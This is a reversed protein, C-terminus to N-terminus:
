YFFRRYGGVGEAIVVHEIKPNEGFRVRWRCLIGGHLDWSDFTLCVHRDSCEEFAPPRITSPVTDALLREIESADRGSRELDQRVDSLPHDLPVDEPGSLVKGLRLDPDVLLRTVDEAIRQADEGFAQLQAPRFSMVRVMTRRWGGMLEKDGVTPKWGADGTNVMVMEPAPARGMWTIRVAEVPLVQLAIPSIQSTDESLPAFGLGEGYRVITRFDPQSVVEDTNSVQPVAGTACSLCVLAALVLMAGRTPSALALSKVAIMSLPASGQAKSSIRQDM